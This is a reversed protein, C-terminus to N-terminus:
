LFAFVKRSHKPKRMEKDVFLAATAWLPLKVTDFLINKRM